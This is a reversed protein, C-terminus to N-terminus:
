LGAYRKIQKNLKKTRAQYKDKKNLQNRQSLHKQKIIKVTEDIELNLISINADADNIMMACHTLEINLLKNHIKKTTTQIEKNDWTVGLAVCKKLQKFDKEDIDILM